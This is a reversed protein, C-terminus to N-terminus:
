NGSSEVALLLVRAGLLVSVLTQVVKWVVMALV